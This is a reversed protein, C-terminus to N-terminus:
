NFFSSFFNEVMKKEKQKVCNVYKKKKERIMGNYNSLMTTKM